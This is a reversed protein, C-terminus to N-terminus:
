WMKGISQCFKSIKKSCDANGHPVNGGNKTLRIKHGGIMSTLEDPTPTTNFEWRYINVFSVHLQRATPRKAPERQLIESILFEVVRRSVSDIQTAVEEVESLPLQLSQGSLAYLMVAMDSHFAKERFILEFLICGM